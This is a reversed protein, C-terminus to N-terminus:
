ILEHLRCVSCVAPLFFLLMSFFVEIRYPFIIYEINSGFVFGLIVGIVSGGVVDLRTHYKGVLRSYIYFLCVPLLVFSLRPDIFYVFVVAGVSTISHLSPFGYRFLSLRSKYPSPRATHFYLKLVVGVSLSAALFVFSSSFLHVFDGRDATLVFVVAVVFYPVEPIKDAFYVLRGADMM